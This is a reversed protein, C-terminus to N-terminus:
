APARNSPPRGNVIIAIAIVCVIISLTTSTTNPNNIITSLLFYTDQDFAFSVDM